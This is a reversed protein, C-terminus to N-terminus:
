INRSWFYNPNSPIGGPRRTWGWPETDLNSLSQKDGLFWQHFHQAIDIVINFGRPVAATLWGGCTPQGASRQRYLRATQGSKRGGQWAFLSRQQWIRDELSAMEGCSATPKAICWKRPVPVMGDGRGSGPTPSVLTQGWQKARKSGAVSM